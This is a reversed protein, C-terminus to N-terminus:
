PLNSPPASLKLEQSKLLGDISITVADRRIDECRFKVRISNELVIDVLDGKEVTKGNIIALWRGEAGSLGQFQLGRWWKSAPLEANTVRRPTFEKMRKQGEEIQKQSLKLILADHAQKAELELPTLPNGGNAALAFWKYAEVQDQELFKGNELLRGLQIQAGQHGMNAATIFWRAAEIGRADKSEDSALWDDASRLLIRGAENQAHLVGQRGAKGYWFLPGESALNGRKSRYIDGLKAQAEADGKEAAARLRAFVAEDSQALVRVSVLALAILIGVQVM